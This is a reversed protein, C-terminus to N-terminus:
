RVPFIRGSLSPDYQTLRDTGSVLVCTSPTDPDYSHNEHFSKVIMGFDEDLDDPADDVNKVRVLVDQTFGHRGGMFEVCDKAEEKNSMDFEKVVSYGLDRHEESIEAEEYIQQFDEAQLFSFLSDMDEEAGIAAYAKNVNRVLDYDIEVM